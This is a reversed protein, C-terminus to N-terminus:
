TQKLIIVEWFKDDSTCTLNKKIEYFTINQEQSISKKQLKLM